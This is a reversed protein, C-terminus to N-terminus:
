NHKRNFGKVFKVKIWVPLNLVIRQVINRGIPQLLCSKSCDFVNGRLDLNSRM